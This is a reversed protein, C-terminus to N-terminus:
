KKVKKKKQRMEPPIEINPKQRELLRERNGFFKKM